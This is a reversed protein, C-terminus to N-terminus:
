QLNPQILKFINDINKHQGLGRQRKGALGLLQIKVFVLMAKCVKVDVM